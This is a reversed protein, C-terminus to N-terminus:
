RPNTRGCPLAQSMPAKSTSWNKGSVTVFVPVPAPVTVLEGGPILQPASQESLKAPVVTVSVAAGLAPELKAPQLPAQVPVLVHVTVIVAARETVAVNTATAGGGGGGGTTVHM